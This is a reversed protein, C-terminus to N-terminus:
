FNFNWLLALCPLARTFFKLAAYLKYTLSLKKRTVGYQSSSQIKLHARSGGLRIWAIKACVSSWGLWCSSGVVHRGTKKVVMMKLTVNKWGVARVLILAISFLDTRTSSTSVYEKHILLNSNAEVPEARVSPSTWRLRLQFISSCM